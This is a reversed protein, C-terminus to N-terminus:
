GRNVDRLLFETIDLRGNMGHDFGRQMGPRDGFGARPGSGNGNNGYGARNEPGKRGYGSGDKSQRQDGRQRM